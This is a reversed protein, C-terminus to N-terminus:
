GKVGRRRWTAWQCCVFRQQQMRASVLNISLKMAIEHILGSYIQSQDKSFLGLDLVYRPSTGVPKVRELRFNDNDDKM